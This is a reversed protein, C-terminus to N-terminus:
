SPAGNPFKTGLWNVIEQNSLSHHVQEEPTTVQIFGPCPGARSSLEGGSIKKGSHLEYVDVTWVSTALEHSSADWMNSPGSGTYDCQQGTGRLEVFDLCAITRVGEAEEAFVEVGDPHPSVTTAAPRPGTEASGTGDPAETRGNGDGSTVGTENLGSGDPSLYIQSPAAPDHAPVEEWATPGACWDDLAGERETRPTTAAPEPDPETVSAATDSTTEEDDKSVFTMLAFLGVALVVGVGCIVLLRRGQSARPPTPDPKRGLPPSGGPPRAGPAPPVNPSGGAFGGAGAFGGVGIFGTPPATPGSTSPNGPPPRVAAPSAVAAGLASGCTACLVADDAAETGCTACTRRNSQDSM